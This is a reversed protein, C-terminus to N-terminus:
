GEGTMQLTGGDGKAEIGWEAIGDCDLRFDIIAGAPAVGPHSAAATMVCALVGRELCAWPLEWDERMPQHEGGRVPTSTLRLATLPQGAVVLRISLLSERALVNITGVRTYTSTNLAVAGSDFPQKLGRINLYDPM